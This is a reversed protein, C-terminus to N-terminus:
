KRRKTTILSLSRRFSSSLLTGHRTMQLPKMCAKSPKGGDRLQEARHFMNTALQVHQQGTCEFVKFIKKIQLTLEDAKAPDETGYFKPPFRKLFKEVLDNLDREKPWPQFVKQVVELLQEQFM